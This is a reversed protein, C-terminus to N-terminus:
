HCIRANAERSMVNIAIELLPAFDGNDLKIAHEQRKRYTVTQILLIPIIIREIVSIPM